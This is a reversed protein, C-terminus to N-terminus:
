SESLDESTAKVNRTEVPNPRLNSLVVCAANMAM